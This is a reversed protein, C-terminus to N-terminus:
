QEDNVRGSTHAEFFALMENITAQSEELEPYAVSTIHGSSRNVSLGWDRFQHEIGAETLVGDFYVGSAHLFDRQCTVIYAPPLEGLPLVEEPQLYDYYPSNKYEFGLFCSILPGNFGNKMDYMGSVLGLADVQLGSPEVDYLKMLKESTNVLPVYYALQGGASDGTVFVKDLDCHYNEGNEAIWKFAAMVDQVMSPYLVDPSLRYNLAIVTYGRDALVSCYVRNSDKDGMMLGGGHIDIIVPLKGEASDPYFIDLKHEDTGDDIYSIDELRTVGATMTQANVRKTDFDTVIDWIISIAATVFGRNTLEGMLKPNKEYLEEDLSFLGNFIKIFRAEASDIDRVEGGQVAIDKLFGYLDTFLKAVSDMFESDSTMGSQNVLRSIDSEKSNFENELEDEPEGNEPLQAKGTVAEETHKIAFDTRRAMTDTHWWIGGTLALIIVISIIKKALYSM